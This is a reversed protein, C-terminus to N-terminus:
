IVNSSDEMTCMRGCLLPNLAVFLRKPPAFDPVEHLNTALKNSGAIRNQQPNWIRV